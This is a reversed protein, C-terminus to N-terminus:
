LLYLDGYIGVHRRAGEQARARTHTRAGAWAYLMLCNYTPIPTEQTIDHRVQLPTSGNAARRHM